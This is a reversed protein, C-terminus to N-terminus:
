KLKYDKLIGCMLSVFFVVNRSIGCVFKCTSDIKIYLCNIRLRLLLGM